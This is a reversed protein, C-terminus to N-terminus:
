IFKKLINMRNYLEPHITKKTVNQNVQNEYDRTLKEFERIFANIETKTVKLLKLLYCILIIYDGLSKFNVYHMGTEQILCQKMSKSPDTKRFRTDYIIDNHAVANRLEKLVYVYKYLLERYTDSSLNLGIEKSIKNRMDYTLCSLLYGFDGMTLIEFIAWIPVDNYNINNYFHTIKPNNKEYAFKISSHISSELKLKNKQMEKKAKVPTDNPSNKYSQVVKDYMDRINNSKIELLITNLSISKLATEIFMVKGYILSKLATDYQITAYIEDYSTFPLQNNSNLFFRYGKYGHFYGTNILQRKQTSGNISIGNDRLHRMLGDVTKYSNNGM